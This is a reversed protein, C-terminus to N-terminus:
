APFIAEKVLLNPYEDKFKGPVFANNTVKNPNYLPHNVNYTSTDLYEEALPRLKDWVYNKNDKPLPIEYILSDTDMYCLKSEPINKKFVNYHFNMMILKSISLICAGTYIPMNLKLRLHKM